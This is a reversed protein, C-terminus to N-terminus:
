AMEQLVQLAQDALEGARRKSMPKVVYGKVASYELARERDTAHSSSTLMVVVSTPKRLEPDLQGYATLFEFGDMLPMNIDLLILLPPFAQEYKSRAAEYERFLRIAETGDTATYITGYRGSKELMKQTLRVDHPNDDVILVSHVTNM